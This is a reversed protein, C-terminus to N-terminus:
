SSVSELVPRGISVGWCDLSSVSVLVPRTLYVGWEVYPWVSKLVPRTLSVGWQGLILCIGHRATYYLSGERRVVLCIVASPM